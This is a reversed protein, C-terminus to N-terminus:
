RTFTLTLEVFEDADTEKVYLIMNHDDLQRIDYTEDDAINVQNEGIITYTSSEVSNNLNAHFTGDDKFEFSDTPQAPSNLSHDANDYHENYVYTKLHWVGIIRESVPKAKEKKCSTFGASILTLITLAVLVKKMFLKNQYNSLHHLYYILRCIYSTTSKFALLILFFGSVSAPFPFAAECKCTTM